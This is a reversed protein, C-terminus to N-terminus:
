IVKNMDVDMNAAKLERALHFKWAGGPDIPVYALGALDSPLEVGNEYLACVRARGLVGAFFGMEFVVNQRARPRFDSDTADALGGWM